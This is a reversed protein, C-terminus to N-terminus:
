CANARSSARKSAVGKLFCLRYVMERLSIVVNVNEQRAAMIFEVEVPGVEYEAARRM